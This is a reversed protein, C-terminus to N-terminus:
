CFLYFYVCIFEPIFHISGTICLMLAMNLSWETTICNSALSHSLIKKLINFIQPTENSIESSFYVPHSFDNRLIVWQGPKITPFILEKEGDLDIDNQILEGFGLVIESKKTTVFEENLLTIKSLASLLIINNENNRNTFPQLSFGQDRSEPHLEKYRILGGKINYHRLTPYGAQQDLVGFIAAISLGQKTKVPVCNVGNYLGPNIIPPFLFGLTNDIVILYSCTDQMEQYKDKVNGPAYNGLLMEDLSDNDIDRFYISGVYNGLEKSSRLSKRKIDYEFIKRPNGKYGTM